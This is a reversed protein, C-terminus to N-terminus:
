VGENSGGDKQGPFLDHHREAGMAYVRTLAVVLMMAAAGAVHWWRGDLAEWVLLVGLIALAPWPVRSPLNRPAIVRRVIV